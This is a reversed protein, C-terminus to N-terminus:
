ASHEKSSAVLRLHRPRPPPPASRRGTDGDIGLLARNLLGQAFVEAELDRLKAALQAVQEALVADDRAM